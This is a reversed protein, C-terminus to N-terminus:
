RTLPTLLVNNFTGRPKRRLIYPGVVDNFVVLRRIFIMRTRPTQPQFLRPAM